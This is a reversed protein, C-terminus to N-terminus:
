RGLEMLRLFEAELFGALEPSIDNAVGAFVQNVSPGYLLYLGRGMAVMKHKHEVREGPKLRIALGLNSRTDLDAEQGARLRVLFMRRSRKAFGPAVEVRVGRRSGVSGSAFRALSTARFRGTIRGELDDGSARKTVALRGDQGSLYRAPFNVQERIRRASEARGRDITKNVAQLAARKVAQPLTELDRLASLGDVAVVYGFGSRQARFGTM